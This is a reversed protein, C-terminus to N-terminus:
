VLRLNEVGENKAERYSLLTDVLAKGLEIGLEIAVGSAGGAAVGSAILDVLNRSSTKKRATALDTTTITTIQERGAFVADDVFLLLQRNSDPEDFFADEPMTMGGM